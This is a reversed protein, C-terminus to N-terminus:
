VRRYMAAMEPVDVDVPQGSRASAICADAVLMSMYGDWASPGSPAGALLSRIWDRVEHVYATEFRQLWDEEVWQGRQNGYRVVPSHLSSTEVAGHEGTMKVDVEYGYGAEVNCEIHGIGGRRFHLQILALRATDPRDASYPVCSTYVRVVEDDMMWRASHLDHVASNTIVDEVTRPLLSGGNVHVGRFALARGLKGSSITQKVKLHALDYERMLGVQILRRGGAVEADVLRRAEAATLALPKECLVPKGADLCARTLQAHFRDPAAILVAEVDPHNILENGDSFTHTAGVAAAVQRLRAQDVDMIAVVQSAAMEHALNRAHREGMGGAGIVGVRIPKM